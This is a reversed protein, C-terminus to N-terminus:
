LWSALRGAHLSCADAFPGPRLVGVSAFAALLAVGTPDAPGLVLQGGARRAAAVAVESGPGQRVRAESLVVLGPRPDDWAAALNCAATVNAAAVWAPATASGPPGPHLAEGVRTGPAGAPCGPVRRWAAWCSPPPGLARGLATACQPRRVLWQRGTGTCRRAPPGAHSGLGGRTAPWAAASRRRM